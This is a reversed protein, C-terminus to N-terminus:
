DGSAGLAKGPEVVTLSEEDWGGVWKPNAFIGEGRVTDDRDHCLIYLPTGDCDRSHGVIWLRAGDELEVLQGVELAHNKSHNVERYSRGQPDDPDKMDAVNIIVPM